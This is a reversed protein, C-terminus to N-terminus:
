IPSEEELDASFINARVNSVAQGTWCFLLCTVAPSVIHINGLYLKQINM